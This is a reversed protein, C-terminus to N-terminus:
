VSVVHIPRSAADILRAPAAGAVLTDPLALWLRPMLWDAAALEYSRFQILWTRAARRDERIGYGSRQRAGSVRDDSRLPYCV